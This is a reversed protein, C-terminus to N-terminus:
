VSQSVWEELVALFERQVSETKDDAYWKHLKEAVEQWTTEESSALSMFLDQAEEPRPGWSGLVELTDADLCILKPISRSRHNTLFEDMIDLHEDRLIFRLTIKENQSAMKEFLPVIQAADGCWGETLVLWILPKSVSSLVQELEPLLSIQKDLRKMRHVNMLTYHIMAESHNEGTTKNDALLRDILERYEEYSYSTQIVEPTIADSKVETM